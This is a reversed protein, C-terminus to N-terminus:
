RETYYLKIYQDLKDSWSDHWQKLELLQSKNYAIIKHGGLFAPLTRQERAAEELEEKPSRM